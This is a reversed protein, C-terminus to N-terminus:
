NIDHIFLADSLSPVTQRSKANGVHIGILESLYAASHTVLSRVQRLKTSCAGSSFHSDGRVPIHPWAYESSPHWEAVHVGRTEGFHEDAACRATNLAFEVSGSRHM